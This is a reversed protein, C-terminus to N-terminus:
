LARVSLDIGVDLRRGVCAHRLRVVVDDAAAPSGPADGSGPKGVVEVSAYQEDFSASVVSVELVNVHDAAETLDETSRVVPVNHAGRLSARLM